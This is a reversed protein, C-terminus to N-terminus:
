LLNSDVPKGLHDNMGANLCDAIDEAFVNATMAIIPTTTADVRSLSRIKRTATLGDMVPMRVDMLIADYYNPPTSNFNTLGNTMKLRISM